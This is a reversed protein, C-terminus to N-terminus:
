TKGQRKFLAFTQVPKAPAVQQRHKIYERGYLGAFIGPKTAATQGTLESPHLHRDLFNFKQLPM